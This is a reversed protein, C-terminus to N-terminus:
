RCARARGGPSSIGSRKRLTSRTVVVAKPRQEVAATTLIPQALPVLDTAPAGYGHCLVVALSPAEGHALDHVVHSSLGGWSVRESHM